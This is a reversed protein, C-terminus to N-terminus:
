QCKFDFRNANFWDQINSLDSEVCYRLYHLNKHGLYLTTNDAFQICQLHELHLSLDNCFILFVLPGLCSGQPAGYEETTELQGTSAPKYKVRIKRNSLYSEFWKLTQGQIGYREMKELVIKPTLTDFAKSLDLFVAVTTKNIEYNKVNEGIMQAIAHDGSLKERFGYQGDYIQGTDNLVKYVRRYVIKELVKLMMLLLSIPLYNDVIDSGKSKYLPVVNAINM